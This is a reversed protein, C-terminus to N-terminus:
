EFPEVRPRRVFVKKPDSSGQRFLPLRNLDQFRFMNPKLFGRARRGGASNLAEDLMYLYHSKLYPYEFYWCQYNKINYRRSLDAEKESDRLLHIVKQRYTVTFPGPDNPNHTLHQKLKKILFALAKNLRALLMTQAVVELRMPRMGHGQVVITEEAWPLVDPEGVVKRRYREARGVWRKMVFAHEGSWSGNPFLHFYLPHNTLHVHDGVVLEDIDILCNEFWGHQPRPDSVATFPLNPWLMGGARYPHNLQTFTLTSGDQAIAAVTALESNDSDVIRLEQGIAFKVGSANWIPVQVQQGQGVDQLISALFDPFLEQFDIYQEGQAVMHRFLSEPDEVALLAELDVLNAVQSCYTRTAIQPPDDPFVKRLAEVPAARGIDTLQGRGADWYDAAGPNLEHLDPQRPYQFYGRSNPNVMYRMREIARVRRDLTLTFYTRNGSQYFQHWLGLLGYGIQAIRPNLWRRKAKSSDTAGQERPLLHEDVIEKASALRTVAAQELAETDPSQNLMQHVTRLAFWVRGSEFFGPVFRDPTAIREAIALLTQENM